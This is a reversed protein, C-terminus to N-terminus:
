IPIRNRLAILGEASPADRASVSSSSNSSISQCSRDPNCANSGPDRAEGLRRPASPKGGAGPVPISQCEDAPSAPLITRLRAAPTPWGPGARPQRLQACFVEQSAQSGLVSSHLKNGTFGALADTITVSGL